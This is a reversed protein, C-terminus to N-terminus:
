EMGEISREIAETDRRMREIIAPNRLGGRRESGTRPMMREAPTVTSLDDFSYSVQRGGSTVRYLVGNQGRVWLQATQDDPATYWVANNEVLNRWQELAEGERYVGLMDVPVDAATFGPLVQREIRHELAGRIQRPSVNAPMRLTEDFQYHGLLMRYAAEAADAGNTDAGTRLREYAVREIMDQYSSLLQAGSGSVPPLSRALESAYEVAGERVDRQMTGDIGTKLDDMKVVSLASVIERTSPDPLNPIIRMAPTLKGDRELETMVRGFYQPGYEAELAGVLDAADEPRTANMIRRSIDSVAAASLVRPETIGLTEQAALVQRVMNQVAAPREEAPLAPDFAARAAEAVSPVQRSVYGVPDEQRQRLVQAAAQQRIRDRDDEAAYGEGPVARRVAGTAVAMLDANTANNMVAVDQAMVQSRQYERFAADADAGLPAFADRTLPQPDPIGNRAMATSDQLRGRLAQAAAATNQRIAQDAERRLAERREYPLNMFSEPAEPAVADESAPLTGQAQKEYFELRNMWSRRFRANEPRALLREYHARRLENFRGVDGGSEALWKRANAPGQNVAADMATGQLEPPLTDGNIANWYRTRYIEVAQERTLNEVDIDPNHKQNIGFNAPAGTNGDNATFGGEHKLVTAVASDFGVSGGAGPVPSSPMAGFRRQFYGTPDAALESREAALNAEEIYKRAVEMRRDPPIRTQAEIVAVRRSIVEARRTPDRYITEYDADMGAKTSEVLVDTTRREQFDFLGRDMRSRMSFAQTQFYRRSRETPLNAATESVWTDFDGGISQRLDGDGPNWATSRTSVQEHWYAEGKSLANAAELAARDEALQEQERDVKEREIEQRRFMDQAVNGLTGGLNQLAGGISAVPQGSARASPGLGGPATRQEYIPIRAM